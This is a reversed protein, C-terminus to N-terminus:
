RRAATVGKRLKAPLHKTAERLTLGSAEGPHARLFQVVLEPRKKSVERLVWGIAKRIFFEKEGLLPAAIKAFLEFDGGGARLTDLQALLATRRVWFDPDRGWKPLERLLREDKAVLRGIVKVALWDVYAWGASRRVFGLLWEADERGLLAWKKELIGIAVSHLEHSRTAYLADVLARLEERDLEQHAKAFDTAARRLSPMGTGFFDLDSKLYAKEQEAREPSGESRLRTRLAAVERRVDIGM